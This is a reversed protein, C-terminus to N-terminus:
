GGDQAEPTGVINLKRQVNHKGLLTLLKAQKPDEQVDILWKMYKNRRKVIDEVFRRDEKSLAGDGEDHSGTIILQCLEASPLTLIKNLAVLDRDLFIDLHLLVEALLSTEQNEYQALCGATEMREVIQEVLKRANFTERNYETEITLAHIFGRKEYDITIDFERKRSRRFYPTHGNERRRSYEEATQGNVEFRESWTRIRRTGNTETRKLKQHDTLSDLSSRPVTANIPIVLRFYSARRQIVFETFFWAIGAVGLGILLKIAAPLGFADAILAGLNASLVISLVKLANARNKGGRDLELSAQATDLGRNWIQVSESLLSGELVQSLENSLVNIEKLDEDYLAQLRKSDEEIKLIMHHPQLRSTEVARIAPYAYIKSPEDFTAVKAAFQDSFRAANLHNLVKQVVPLKINVYTLYKKMQTLSLFHEETNRQLAIALQRRLPIVHDRTEKLIVIVRAVFRVYTALAGFKYIVSDLISLEDPHYETSYFLVCTGEPNAIARTPANSAPVIIKLDSIEFGAQMAETQQNDLMVAVLNYNLLFSKASSDIRPEFVSAHFQQFSVIGEHLVALKNRVALPAIEFLLDALFDRAAPVMENLMASLSIGPIPAVNLIHQAFGRQNIKGRMPFCGSPRGDRTFNFTLMYSVSDQDVTVDKIRGSHDKRLEREIEPLMNDAIPLWHYVAIRIM